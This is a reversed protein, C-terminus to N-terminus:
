GTFLPDDREPKRSVAPPGPRSPALANLDSMVTATIEPDIAYPTYLSMRTFLDGYRRLLEDALAGPEAVVAFTHLIEDDIAAGM